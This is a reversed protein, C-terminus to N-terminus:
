RAWRPWGGTRRAILPSRDGAGRAQVSRRSQRPPALRHPSRCCRQRCRASPSSIPLVGPPGFFVLVSARNARAACSTARPWPQSPWRPEQSPRTRGAVTAALMYSGGACWSLRGREILDQALAELIREFSGDQVWRQFRRHCTQYPPYRDPLDAWQAGTRLIWLIGNLVERSSLWPRGRGDARKPLEGILRDMVTWQQNTLEM